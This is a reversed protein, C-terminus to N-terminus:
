EWLAIMQPNSPIERSNCALTFAGGWRGFKVSQGIPAPVMFPVTALIPTWWGAGVATARRQHATPTARPLNRGTGINGGATGFGTRTLSSPLGPRMRPGTAAPACRMAVALNLGTPRRAGTLGM